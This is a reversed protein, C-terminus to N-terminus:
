ADFGRLSFPAAHALLDHPDTPPCHDVDENEESASINRVATEPVAVAGPQKPCSYLLRYRM